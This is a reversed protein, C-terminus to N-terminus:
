FLERVVDELHPHHERISEKLIQGLSMATSTPINLSQLAQNMQGMLQLKEMGPFAFGGTKLPPLPPASSMWGQAQPFAALFHCFESAPLKEKLKNLLVGAVGEAQTPSLSANSCLADILPDASM